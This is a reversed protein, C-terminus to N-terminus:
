DNSVWLPGLASKPVPTHALANGAPSVEYARNLFGDAPCTSCRLGLAALSGTREPDDECHFKNRHQTMQTDAVRKGCEECELVVAKRKRVPMALFKSNRCLPDRASAARTASVPAIPSLNQSKVLFAFFVTLFGLKVM